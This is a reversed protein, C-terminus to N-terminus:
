NVQVFYKYDSYYCVYHLNDSTECSKNLWNKTLDSKSINVSEYGEIASVEKQTCIEKTQTYNEGFESECYRECYDMIDGVLHFGTLVSGCRNLMDFASNECGMICGHKTWIEHFTDVKYSENHCESVSINFKPELKQALQYNDWIYYALFVLLILCCGILTLSMTIWFGLHEETRKFNELETKNMREKNHSRAM